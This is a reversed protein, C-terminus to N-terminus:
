APIWEACRTKAEHHPTDKPLRLQAERRVGFLRTYPDRVDAPIGKRAFWSGDKARVLAVMRLAM